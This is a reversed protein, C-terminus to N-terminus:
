KSGGMGDELVICKGLDLVLSVLSLVLHKPQKKKLEMGLCAATVAKYEIGLESCHNPVPEYVESPLEAAAPLLM